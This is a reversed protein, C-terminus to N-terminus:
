VVSATLIPTVIARFMDLSSQFKLLSRITADLQNNKKIIYVSHEKDMQLNKTSLYKFM